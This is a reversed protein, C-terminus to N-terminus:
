EGKNNFKYYKNSIESINKIFFSRFGDSIKNEDINNNLQIDMYYKGTKIDLSISDLPFGKRRNPHVKSTIIFSECISNDDYAYADKDNLILYIANKYQAKVEGGFESAIKTYYEIMEEDNLTKGNVRRVYTAPQRNDPLGEIYLGSDCSFVPVRLAKYYATAKIKANELPSSGKEDVSEVYANIDKLGVIDLNLGKLMARMSKLKADNGTGYLLKM